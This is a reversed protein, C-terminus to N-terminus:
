KWEVRIRMVSIDGDDSLGAVVASGTTGCFTLLTECAGAWAEASMATAPLARMHVEFIGANPALDRYVYRHGHSFDHTFQPVRSLLTRPSGGFQRLLGQVLPRLLSMWWRTMSEAAMKRVAAAGGVEGVAEVIGRIHQAECWDTAEPPTDFLRQIEPALHARVPEFLGVARLHDIWLRAVRGKFRVARDPQAEAM